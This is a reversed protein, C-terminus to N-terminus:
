QAPIDFPSYSGDCREGDFEHDDLRYDADDGTGFWKLFSELSDFMSMYGSVTEDNAVDGSFQHCPRIIVEQGCVPCKETIVM